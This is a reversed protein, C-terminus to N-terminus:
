RDEALRIGAFQWRDPPYFFNRYSARMHDAPTACSGGRLVMQNAMFKGNYEGLAGTLPRYGPYPLYASQTWEWVDGYIQLPMTGPAAPAPRLLGSDRFNGAIPQAAVAIEWEQETPLRKGAWRAFADAEYYSLHCVPEHEDVARMGGLTFQQWRGEIREWYLPAQWGRECVASWGDSLWFEPGHYGGADIFEIYEGCTVLRPALAFSALYVKHRPTENDFAFGEGAHGIEHMGGAYETWSLQGPHTAPAAPLDDRYAPRLPNISLNYKIDTLLLEQHQQEHHCGLVLRRAIEAAEAADAEALLEAMARDVHARYRYVEEVTPRSLLGRQARPFQTGISQYYSNFLYEFRPHFSQYERLYPRLLFTEFFWSTHALHWKPPSADPMCQLGYDELALPACLAESARRVAEYRAHLVQQAHQRTEGAHSQRVDVAM